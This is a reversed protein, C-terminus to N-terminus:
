PKLTVERYFHSGVLERMELRPGVLERQKDEDKTKFFKADIARSKEEDSASYDLARGYSAHLFAFAVDWDKEDRRAPNLFVKYDLYLGQKKEEAFRPLFNARVFKMYAQFKDPKVRYYVVQWVPGEAYHEQAVATGAALCTAVAAALMGTRM